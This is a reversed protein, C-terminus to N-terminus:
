ANNTEKLSQTTADLLERIERLQEGEDRSLPDLIAVAQTAAEKTGASLPGRLGKAGATVADLNKRLYRDAFVEREDHEFSVNKFDSRPNFPPPTKGHREYSEVLRGYFARRDAEPLDSFAGAGRGGLLLAMSYATDEWSAESALAPLARAAKEITSRVKQIRAEDDAPAMVLSAELVDAKTVYFTWGDDNQYTVGDIVVKEGPEAVIEELPWFGISLGTLAGDRVLIAADKGSSTESIPGAVHLGRQDEDFSTWRGIVERHYYGMPFPKEDSKAALSEAFAGPVFVEWYSNRVGFVSAYGDITTKGDSGEAARFPYVRRRVDTGPQIDPEALLGM